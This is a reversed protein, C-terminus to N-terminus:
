KSSPLAGFAIRVDHVPDRSFSHVVDKVGEKDLVKIGRQLAASCLRACLCRDLFNRGQGLDCIKKFIAKCVHEWQQGNVNKGENLNEAIELIAAIQDAAINRVLAVNDHCLDFACPLLYELVMHPSIVRVIQGLERAIMERVRWNRTDHHSINSDESSVTRDDSDESSQSSNPILLEPLHQLFSEHCQSPLKGLLRALYKAMGLRVHGSQDGMLRFLWACFHTCGSTKLSCSMSIYRTGYGCPFLHVVVCPDYMSGNIRGM